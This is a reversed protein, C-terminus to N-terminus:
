GHADRRSQPLFFSFFCIMMILNYKRKNWKGPIIGNTVLLSFSQTPVWAKWWWENSFAKSGFGSHITFLMSLTQSHSCLPIVVRPFYRISAFHMCIIYKSLLWYSISIINTFTLGDSAILTILLWTVFCWVISSWVLTSLSCCCSCSLLLWMSHRKSSSSWSSLLLSLMANMWCYSTFFVLVIGLNRLLLVCVCARMYRCTYVFVSDYLWSCCDFATKM